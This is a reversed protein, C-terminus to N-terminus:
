FEQYTVTGLIILEAPGPVVDAPTIGQVLLLTHNEEGQAVSIAESIKAITITGTSTGSDGPEAERFLMDDLEAEVAAQVEATNPLLGIEIDLSLAIPAVANYDATVPKLPDVADQVEQVESSDPIIASGTFKGLFDGGQLSKTWITNVIGNVIALIAKYLQDYNLDSDSGDPVFGAGEIVRVVSEQVSNFQLEDLLTAPIATLSDANQYGHKGLGFKDELARSINIGGWIIPIRKM